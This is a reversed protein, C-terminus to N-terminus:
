PSIILLVVKVQIKVSVTAEVMMTSTTKEVKGCGAKLFMVNLVFNLDKM